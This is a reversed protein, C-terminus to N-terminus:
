IYKVIEQLEKRTKNNKTLDSAPYGIPILVALEEDEDLDFLERSLPADFNCVWCTGLGVEAAALCIHEALIAIDIDAHDKGDCGRHWSLDHKATLLLYCPATKFWDRNYLQQVNTRNDSDADVIYIRWPQKNVASPALRACELVYNLKETEIVRETDYNRVSFRENALDLFTM